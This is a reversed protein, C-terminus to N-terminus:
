ALRLRTLSHMWSIPGALSATDIFEVSKVKLGVALQAEISIWLSPTIMAVVRLVPAATSGIRCHVGVKSPPTLQCHPSTAPFGASTGSRQRPAGTAPLPVCSASLPDVLPPPLADPAVPLLEPLAAPVPPPLADGAPSEPLAVGSLEDPLAAPPDLEPEPEPEFEPEPEPELEFEPEPEPEPGLASESEPEPLLPELLPLPAPSLEPLPPLEPPLELPVPLEDLLVHVFLPLPLPLPEQM